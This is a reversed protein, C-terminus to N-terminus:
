AVGEFMKERFTIETPEADKIKSAGNVYIRDFTKDDIIEKTIWEAEKDLDLDESNRWVILVDEIADEDRIEGKSIIYRRGQHEYRRLTQVWLGILYHFTEVMDVKEPVPSEHGRQINLEYDFPTEFAEDKLLTASVGKTEFDLMYKLLYDDFEMAQQVDDKKKFDINNLCDDYFETIQYKLFHSQWENKNLNLPIGNKWDTSLVTKQIRKKIVDCNRFDLDILFYRRGENYEQNLKIISEATTGSGAFYDLILADENQISYFLYELLKPPKPYDVKGGLGLNELVLSGNSKLSIISRLLFSEVEKLYTISSPQTTTDNAYWIRGKMMSGDPLVYTPGNQEANRFTDEKWRWGNKPIPVPENTVPNIVEYRPGESNPNPWSMNIKGWIEYNPDLECYLTIGRDYGQKKYFKKLRERAIDLSNDQRKQKEIFEYIEEIGEKKMVFSSDNNKWYDYDKVFLYIYEHINGIGKDNKPVRKNWTITEIHNKASFTNNLLNGFNLFENEDCSAFYSAQSKMLAKAKINAQNLLSLWSSSKYNDKYIFGDDGTNYPPDIYICDIGNSFKNEVLNLGQFNESNLVLGDLEEDLDDYSALLEYKFDDEFLKTDVMMYPHSKLVAETWEGNWELNKEWEGMSYCEEWYALQEENALITEYLEEPVKDLTMCYHTDVVFKKKEFLKKQFDEIQSLFTIVKEAIGRVVKARTLATQLPQESDAKIFDDVQIVEHKLYYELERELFEQLNKHIFYDTTNKATFHNLKDYLLSHEKDDPMTSLADRWRGTVESRVWDDFATCLRERDITKLSKGAAENYIELWKEEEEDKLPRYEFWLTLTDNEEDIEVPEEPRLVFYRTDSEKVNDKEVEAQQVKFWVNLGNAEFKYNAFHEGTKIYYQDKNAWHLKVEEGNYPIAYKSDRTSIRRQTLFDGDDYYRSFFTYLDQYIRKEIEEGVEQKDAKKKAQLYKKGLPTNEYQEALGGNEFAQEGLTNKIEQKLEDLQSEDDQSYEELGKEIAHLLDEEIFAEIEDRKRNLIRYIGFDLDSANFQFLERLKKQLKTRLEQRSEPM